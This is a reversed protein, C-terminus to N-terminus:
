GKIINSPARFGEPGAGAQYPYPFRAILHAPAPFAEQYSKGGDRSIGLTISNDWCAFYDNQPCYGPHQHGQYENHILAYITQGDETYTAAIWEADNFQSPDPDHDSRMIPNCDITLHNLDTGLFRYNNDSSSIAQVQGEADRFARFALDPINQNACRDNGWDFVIEEEGKIKLTPNPFPDATPSPPIIPTPDSLMPEVSESTPAADPTTAGSEPASPSCATLLVASIILLLYIRKM